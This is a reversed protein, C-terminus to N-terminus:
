VKGGEMVCREVFICSACKEHERWGNKDISICKMCEIYFYSDNMDIVTSKEVPNATSYDYLNEGLKLDSNKFLWRDPKDQLNILRAIVRGLALEFEGPSPPLIISRYEYKDEPFKFCIYEHVDNNVYFSPKFLEEHSDIDEKSVVFDQCINLMIKWLYKLFYHLGNKCGAMYILKDNANKDKYQEIVEADDRSITNLLRYQNDNDSEFDNLWSITNNFILRLFEEQEDTLDSNAVIEEYTECAVGVLYVAISPEVNSNTAEKMYLDFESKEIKLKKFDSDYILYRQQIRLVALGLLIAKWDQEHIGNPTPYKASLQDMLMTKYSNIIKLNEVECKAIFGKLSDETAFAKFLKEKQIDKKKETNVNNKLWQEVNSISSDVGLDLIDQGIYSKMEDLTPKVITKKSHVYLKPQAELSCNLIQNRLYQYYLDTSIEKLDPNSKPYHKVQIIDYKDDTFFVAIDELYEICVCEVGDQLLCNIAVYDQFLFGRVTSSADRNKDGDSMVALKTLESQLKSM